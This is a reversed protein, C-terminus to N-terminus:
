LNVGFRALTATMQVVVIKSLVTKILLYTM